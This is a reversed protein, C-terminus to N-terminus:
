KLYAQIECTCPNRDLSKKPKFNKIRPNTWGREWPERRGAGMSRLAPLLSSQSRPQSKNPYSFKAATKLARFNPGPNHPPPPTLKAWPNIKTKIKTGMRDDGDSSIQLVAGPAFRGSVRPTGWTWAMLTSNSRRFYKLVASVTEMMESFVLFM